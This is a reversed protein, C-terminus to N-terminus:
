WSRGSWNVATGGWLIVAAFAWPWSGLTLLNPGVIPALAYFLAIATCLSGSIFCGVGVMKYSETSLGYLTLCGATLFCIGWFWKGGPFSMLYQWQKSTLKDGMLMVSVSFLLAWVGAFHGIARAPQSERLPKERM